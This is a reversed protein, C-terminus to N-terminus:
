EDPAKNLIYKSRRFYHVGIYYYGRMIIAYYKIFRSSLNLATNNIRITNESKGRNLM